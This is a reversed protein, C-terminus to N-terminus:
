HANMPQLYFNCEEQVCSFSFTMMAVPYGSTEDNCQYVTCQRHSSHCVVALLVQRQQAHHYLSVFYDHITEAEAEEEM